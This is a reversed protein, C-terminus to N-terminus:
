LILKPKALNPNSRDFAINVSSSFCLSKTLPMVWQTVGKFKKFFFITFRNDQNASKNSCRVAANVAIQRCLM